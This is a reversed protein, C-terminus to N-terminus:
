SSLKINTKINVKKEFLGLHNDACGGGRPTHAQFEWTSWAEVKEGQGGAAKSQTFASGPGVCPLGAGGSNLETDRPM